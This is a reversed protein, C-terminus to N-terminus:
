KEIECHRKVAMQGETRAREWCAPCAMKGTGEVMTWAPEINAGIYFSLGQKTAGCYECITISEKQMRDILKLSRLSDIRNSKYIKSM